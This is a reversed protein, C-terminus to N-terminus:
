LFYKKITSYNNYLLERGKKSVFYLLEYSQRDLNTYYSLINFVLYKSKIKGIMFLGAEM